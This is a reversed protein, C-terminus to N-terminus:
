VEHSSREEKGSATKKKDFMSKYEDLCSKCLEISNTIRLDELHVGDYKEFHMSCDYLMDASKGCKDCRLTMIRM